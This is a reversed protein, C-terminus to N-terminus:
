CLPNAVENVNWDAVTLEDFARERYVSAMNILIDLRGFTKAVLEVLDVCAQPNSLDSQFIEGRVGRARVREIATDAEPRSRAYCIAINVGRQALQEAVVAGIRKAGTLLAVTNQLNM